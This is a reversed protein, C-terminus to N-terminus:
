DVSVNEKAMEFMRNKAQEIDCITDSFRLNSSRIDLSHDDHICIVVVRAPKDKLAAKLVKKASLFTEVPEPVLVIHDGKRKSM